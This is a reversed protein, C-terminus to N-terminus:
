GEIEVKGFEKEAEEPCQPNYIADQLRGMLINKAFDSGFLKEIDNVIIVVAIEKEYNPKNVTLKKLNDKIRGVIMANEGTYENVSFSILLLLGTIGARALAQRYQKGNEIESWNKMLKNDAREFSGDKNRIVGNRPFFKQGTEMSHLHPGLDVESGGEPVNIKLQRAQDSSVYTPHENTLHLDWIQGKIKIKALGFPDVYVVPNSREMQYLNMGDNYQGAPNPDQCYFRGAKPGYWRANFYYLGTAADQRKGQYLNESAYDSATRGSWDAALVTVEGYPKYVYREVVNGSADVLVTTNFNADQAAYFREELGNSTNNDADRDREVLCDQYVASWIYQAKTVGSERDEIVQWQMSYYRDQTTGDATRQVLRSIADYAYSVNVVDNGDKVEVLRNWADYVYTKGISDLTTNGNADYTQTASGVATLENQANTTRDETTGDTTVSTSNGVADLNWSQSASATGEIGDKATNLTGRQFSTLRNLSDYTYVESLATNVMNEKYLVNGDRDYGYQYDDLTVDSSNVYQIEATRGFDDLTITQTVGNGETKQVMTDLGLYVHSELTGGTDSISTLRSIASSVDASGYNYSIVRGNPYTMSTLRGGHSLDYSYRVVPTTATDVAGNTAQYEATIQGLSNYERKVQNVITTGATDSYSTLYEVQGLANYTYSLKRVAGDVGSGLTTVTDDTLRGLVNYSYSHVNGNRDTKTLTEGLADVTYTEQEDASAEGTATDPYQTGVLVDNSDVGDGRSQSAGYIYKTEQFVDGPLIATQTLVHDDGDYIYQTTRNSSNTPTGDTYAEITQTTRGLADYSYKTVIGKPDTVTDLLGANNYAYSDVLTTDSRTPVDTPRTYATGGNTGVNATASLRGALDYWNSSYSVRAQPQTTSTPTGLSGTGTANDFRQRTISLLVNGDDDYVYESQQLVVDGDVNFADAYSSDGGGDSQYTASLRGVGDYALKTVLGGSSLTKIVQGRADYWYNTALGSGISGTTQDVSFSTNRYVQGLTDYDTTSRARLTSSDLSDPIGDANADTMAVGDGDYTNQATVENLNNYTLVTLPRNTTSDESTQVGSKSSVLRGRWDYLYQTVRNAQSGGPYLTAQTLSGDGVGNGDYQYASIQTLNNEATGVWVQAIRGLSDYRTQTITGTPSTTQYAIGNADYATSTTYYNANLTGLSAATSYTLGELDFYKDSRVVQGAHNDYDRTLSQVNSISESGDPNGNADLNPTASYTLTELYSGAYDERAVAVPLTAIYNVADWGSYVRVEHAADKYVTYTIRGAPTIEETTRGLADVQYTTILHLGGSTPTSWGSPLGTFDSTRTTDVDEIKKVLAGTSSDYAYYNIYGDADKTWTLEGRSNYYSVMSTAVGSGNQSTAVAPLTTTVTQYQFSDTYWSYAYSITSAGTGDTNAYSTSDATVFISTGNVTRAYYDYSHLLISTGLEGQQVKEDAKYSYAGGATTASATTTLYYDTVDIEGTSDNLYQYNGSVAHLLDSYQELTSLNAPLDVASSKAEWIVRGASDYKYFTGWQQGELQPSVSDHLNRFVKLIVEGSYNCYVVNQNGDPLTEITKYYWVNNNTAYDSAPSPNTSYAYSYSGVGTTTSDNGGFSQIDHRTCRRQSDYAFYHAAFPAVQTDTLADVTTSNVSAYAVLRAYSSADLVYKLGHAYGNADGAKYYRYYQTDIDNGSTDKTTATKLDGSSGNADGNAYYAYAVSRVINWGEADGGHYLTVSTIHGGGYAYVWREGDTSQDAGRRRVEAIDGDTTWASVYTYNGAADTRSVFKGRQGVDALSFDNFVTTEGTSTTYIFQSGSHILSDLPYSTSSYVNSTSDTRDFSRVDTGSYVITIQQGVLTATDSWEGYNSHWKEQNLSAQTLQLSPLSTDLYGSGYNDNGVVQNRNTWSRTVGFNSGFGDSALDTTEYVVTGDSYQIPDYTLAAFASKIARLIAAFYPTWYGSLSQQSSPDYSTAVIQNTSTAIDAWLAYGFKAQPVTGDTVLNGTALLSASADSGTMTATTPTFGALANGNLDYYGTIQRLGTQDPLDLTSVTALYIRKAGNLDTSVARVYYSTNSDLGSVVQSVGSAAASQMSTFNVGDTSVEIQYSAGQCYLGRWSLAIETGSLSSAHGGLQESGITVVGTDSAMITGINTVMCAINLSAAYGGMGYQTGVVGNDAKILGRNEIVDGSHFSNIYGTGHVTLDAGIQWTVASEQGYGLLIRSNPGVLNVTGNGTWQQSGVINLGALNTISNSQLEITGDLEMGGAVALCAGDPVTVTGYLRVNELTGPNGSDATIALGGGTTINVTGGLIRGGGALNWYGTNGNFTLTNGTNDLIGTLNIIGFGSNRNVTPLDAYTFSGGLNIVGTDLSISGADSWNGALSLVGNSFGINSSSSLTSTKGPAGITLNGGMDVFIDNDLQLSHVAYAGYTIDICLNGPIYIVVNDYYTPVLDNSWNLPDSWSYGDGGGDWTIAPTEAVVAIQADGSISNVTARATATGTGTAPSTYIGDTSISGDSGTDLSWTFQPQTAMPFGFQDQAMATLSRSLAVEIQFSGPTIQISTLTQAVDVTVRSSVKAGDGDQITVRFTYSGALGFTATTAKADNDGNVSFTPNPAGQPKAVVSWTYILGSEGDEVDAGLVALDVTTGTVTTFSANAAVAVTPAQNSGTMTTASASTSTNSWGMSNTAYVRYYYTTGATLSTDTFTTVDQGVTMRALNQTFTSNTAREILYGTEEGQYGYEDAVCDTWNLEMSSTSMVEATFGTPTAPLGWDGYSYISATDSWASNGAANVARIRFYYTVGGLITSDYGSYETADASPYVTTLNFQFNADTARQIEFGTENNSNDSWTVYESGYYAYGSLNNPAAPAVTGTITVGATGSISGSAARVTATSGSEPATYLGSSDITGSNSEDVSWTWTPQNDMIIGFQDYGTATFQQSVQSEVEVTDPSVDITTLTQNVQVTVRSIAKAGSTDQMVVMFRYTGAQSFTATTAKATNNGNVSFTPATAGTPSAITTWTYTLASEGDEADNSLVSLNVTTGTVPTASASAADVITPAQNTGTQTTVSCAATPNSWGYENTGYVRYYYTTGATLGTDTYDTVNQGVQIRTLNQTFTSNTAREIQFGTAGYGWENLGPDTWGIDVSSTSLTQVTPNTPTNPITWDGYTSCSATASYASNGASNVARIRYYYAVNSLMGSGYDWTETADASATFSTVNFQFNADTARQIQFGTENSSNDSWYLYAGGYDGWATLGSPATPIAIPVVSTDATGTISGSTAAITETGTGSSPATYLGGSTITGNGVSVAWTYTPETAMPQGFQDEGSASFQQSAGNEVSSTSPSVVISTLTQDVEVSVRSIAKFGSTDQITVKFRYNGAGAFTTTTNKGSNNGNISFTPATVGDPQSVVSWTYTLSSESDENDAGLVSLNTTTGTVPSSSAGAATAVTPAQGSGTLTSVTMAQTPYSWGTDNTGYVRYYYTTGASLGTDTYNTVSSAVSTRSLNQTFASNTAREILFGTAQYGYYSQGPDTWSLDVATPSLATAAPNTPTDPLQYSYYTAVSAVGTNASDGDNNVAHVRFYYTVNSLLSSAVYETTDAALNTTTVNATFNPTTSRDVVFGTEDSSNDSWNMYVDSESYPTAWLDSPAAPASLLQRTELMEVSIPRLRIVQRRQHRFASGISRIVSATAQGLVRRTHGSM